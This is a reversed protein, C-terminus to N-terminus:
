LGLSTSYSCLCRIEGEDFQISHETHRNPYFVDASDKGVCIDKFVKTLSTKMVGNPAYIIAVNQEHTYPIEHQMMGIGYCNKLKMKLRNFAM